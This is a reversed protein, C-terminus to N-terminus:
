GSGRTTVDRLFSLKSYAGRRVGQERQELFTDLWCALSEMDTLVDHESPSSLTRSGTYELECQVLARHPEELLTCRDFLASFCAGTRTSELNVDYRIRRFWPLARAQLGLESLVYDKLSTEPPVGYTLQERRLVTDETFCKRKQVYTGDATPMFSVYGRQDAPAFVEFLYNLYDWCEFENRYRLMFGPVAADRLAHRVEVALRYIDSGAGLTYKYELELGPRWKRFHREHSNLFQAHQRHQELAGALWGLDEVTGSLLPESTIRLFCADPGPFRIQSYVHMTCSDSVPRAALYFLPVWTSRSPATSVQNVLRRLGPTPLGDRFLEALQGRVEGDGAITRITVFSPAIESFSVVVTNGASSAGSDPLSVLGIVDDDALAASGHIFHVPGLVLWAEHHRGTQPHMPQEAM